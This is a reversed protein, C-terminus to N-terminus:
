KSPTSVFTGLHQTAREWNCLWHISFGPNSDLDTLELTWATERRLTKGLLQPTLHYIHSKACLNFIIFCCIIFHLIVKRGVLEIIISFIYGGWFWCM